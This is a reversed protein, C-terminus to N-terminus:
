KYAGEQAPEFLAIKDPRLSWRFADYILNHSEDSRDTLHDVPIQGAEFCDLDLFVLPGGEEPSAKAGVRIGLSREDQKLLVQSLLETPDTWADSRLLATLEPRLVESIETVSIAGTNETTFFNVYRLGVRYYFPIEYIRQMAGQILELDRAFDSWVTYRNTALAFISSSVTAAVHGNQSVFRYLSGEEESTSMEIQPFRGVIVEQIEVPPENLLRLIPPFRVQCIVEVLPSKKLPVDSYQPFNLPV